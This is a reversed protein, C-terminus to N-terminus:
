AKGPRKRTVRHASAAPAVDSKNQKHWAQCTHQNYHFLSRLHAPQARNRLRRRPPFQAEYISGIIITLSRSAAEVRYSISDTAFLSNLELRPTKNQYNRHARALIPVCNLSCYPILIDRAFFCNLDALSASVLEHM